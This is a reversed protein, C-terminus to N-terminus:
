KKNLRNKVLHNVVASVAAGIGSLMITYFIDQGWSALGGSIIGLLVAGTDTAIDVKNAM